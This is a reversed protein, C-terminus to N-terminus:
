WSTGFGDDAGYGANLMGLRDQHTPQPNLQPRAVIGETYVSPASAPAKVSGVNRQGRPPIANKPSPVSVPGRLYEEGGAQLFNRDLVPSPQLGSAKAIAIEQAANDAGAVKPGLGIPANAGRIGQRLKSYDANLIPDTVNKVQNYGPILGMLGNGDMVTNLFDSQKPSNGALAAEQANGSPLVFKSQAQNRMASNRRIDDLIGM